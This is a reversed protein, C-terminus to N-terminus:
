RDLSKALYLRMPCRCFHGSGFAVAFTCSWAKPELCELYEEMGLDKAKCISESEPSLCRFGKPCDMEGKIEKIRIRHADEM